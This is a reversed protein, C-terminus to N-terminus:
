RYWEGKEIVYLRLYFGAFFAGWSSGAVGWDWGTFIMTVAGILAALWWLFVSLKFM